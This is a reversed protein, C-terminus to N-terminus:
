AKTGGHWWHMDCFLPQGTDIALKKNANTEFRKGALYKKLVAFPHFYDRVLTPSLYGRVLAKPLTFDPTLKCPSPARSCCVLGRAVFPRGHGRRYCEATVADCLWSFWFFFFVKIAGSPLWSSGWPQPQPLHHRCTVSAQKQNRPRTIPWHKWERYSREASSRKTIPTRTLQTVSLGVSVKTITQPNRQWAAHVYNETVWIITSLATGM